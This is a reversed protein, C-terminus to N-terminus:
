SRSISLFPLYGGISLALIKDFVPCRQLSAVALIADMSHSSERM